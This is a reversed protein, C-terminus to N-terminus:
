LALKWGPAQPLDRHAVWLHGDHVFLQALWPRTVELTAFPVPQRDPVEVQLVARQPEDHHLLALAGDPAAMRLGVVAGDHMSELLPVVIEPFAHDAIPAARWPEADIRSTGGYCTSGTCLRLADIPTTEPAAKAMQVHEFRGDESSRCLQWFTGTDSRWPCGMAFVPELQAPWAIWECQKDGDAGLRLVLQGEDCPWNVHMDDFVPAEFGHRPVPAHTPVVIHRSTGHTSAVLQVVDGPGPVPLWIVGAWAVPGGIAPGQGIHEIAYGLGIVDPTIAALGAISPCYATAHGPAQVLEMRWGRPNRLGQAWSAGTTRRLAIWRNSEPLLVLLEGREPEVALLTPCAVGFRDVVLRYEGLPLAPLTRDPRGKASRERAHALALPLPTQRLGHDLSEAGPLASAGFPPVWPPDLTLTVGLAAGTQPSYNFEVPFWDGSAPERNAGALCAVDAASLRPDVVTGDRMAALRWTGSVLDRHWTGSHLEWPEEQVEM